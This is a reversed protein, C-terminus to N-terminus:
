LGAGARMRLSSADVRCDGFGGQPNASLGEFEEVSSHTGYPYYEGMVEQEMDSADPVDQVAQHFDPSSLMHRMILLSDARPGWHLWKVGCEPRANAPRHEPRSIVVTYYGNEDVPIQADYACDFYRQSYIDNTCLSWYRLQASQMVSQNEYTRPTVPARASIVAIDGFERNITATVYANHQNALFGGNGSSGAAQDSLLQWFDALPLDAIVPIYRAISIASHGLGVFKTWVVPDTGERGSLGALANSDAVLQNIGLELRTKELFACAEPADLVTGNALVYQLRPLDVNGALSAGQDPVYIRYLFHGYNLPVGLYGMYLTNPERDAENEPPPDPIVRLTYSRDVVNRNAGTLFPNRSGADPRIEIDALSDFAAWKYDYANYSMYRAHPYEGVIRVEGGPPIAFEAAWYNAATDPFAINILDPDSNAFWVCDRVFESPEGQNGSGNGPSPDSVPSQTIDTSDDGGCAALVSALALMLAATFPRCSGRGHGVAHISKIFLSSM